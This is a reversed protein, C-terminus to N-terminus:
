RHLEQRVRADQELIGTRHVAESRPIPNSLRVMARVLPSGCRRARLWSDMLRHWLSVDGEISEAAWGRWLNYRGDALMVEQGPEYALGTARAHGRWELWADLVLREKPKGNREIVILRQDLVTDRIEGAKVM